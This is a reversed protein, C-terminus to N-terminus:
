PKRAKSDESLLGDWEEHTLHQVKELYTSIYLLRQIRIQQDPAKSLFAQLREQVITATVSAPAKQILSQKVVYHILIPSYHRTTAYAISAVAFLVAMILLRKKFTM